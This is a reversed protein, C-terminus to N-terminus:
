RPHTVQSTSPSRHLGNPMLLRDFRESKLVEFMTECIVRECSSKVHKITFEGVVRASPKLSIVGTKTNVKISEDIEFLLSLKRKVDIIAKRLCDSKSGQITKAVRYFSIEINGDNRSTLCEKVAGYADLNNQRLLLEELRLNVSKTVEDLNRGPVPQVYAYRPGPWVDKVGAVQPLESKGMISNYVSRQSVGYTDFWLWGRILVAPREVETKQANKNAVTDGGFYIKKSIPIEVM